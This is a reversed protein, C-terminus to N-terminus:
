RIRNTIVQFDVESVFLILRDPYLYYYPRDNLLNEKSLDQLINIVSSTYKNTVILARYNEALVSLNTKEMLDKASYEDCILFFKNNEAVVLFLSDNKSELVPYNDCLAVFYSYTDIKIDKSDDLFTKM